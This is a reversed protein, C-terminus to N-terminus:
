HKKVPKMGWKGSIFSAITLEYGKDSIM